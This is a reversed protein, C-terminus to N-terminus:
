EEWFDWECGCATCLLEDLTVEHEQAMRYTCTTGVWGEPSITNEWDIDYFSEGTDMEYALKQLCARCTHRYLLEKAELESGVEYGPTSSSMCALIYRGTKGKLEEIM